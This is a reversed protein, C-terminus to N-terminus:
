SSVAWTSTELLSSQRRFRDCLKRSAPKLTTSWRSSPTYQPRPPHYLAGIVVAEVRVWLLEYTGVDSSHVWVSSQLTSRVYIAVGGGRRGVRDRCFVTYDPVAIINDSHKQNFHTEIIVTIDIDNSHLDATLHQVAHPKSLAAANLIYLLPTFEDRCSPSTVTQCATNDNRQSLTM